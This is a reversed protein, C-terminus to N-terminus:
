AVAATAGADDDGIRQHAFAHREQFLALLVMKDADVRVLPLKRQGREIGPPACSVDRVLLSGSLGRSVVDALDDEMAPCPWFDLAGREAMRQNFNRFLSKIDDAHGGVEAFVGVQM